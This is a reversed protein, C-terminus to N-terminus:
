RYLVTFAATNDNCFVDYTTASTRNYGLYAVQGVKAVPATFIFKLNYSNVDTIAAPVTITQKYGPGAGDLVWNAALITGTYPSLSSLFLLPSNAGDHNHSDFRSVNFEYAQFWGSTGKAPDGAQPLRYGYTTTTM